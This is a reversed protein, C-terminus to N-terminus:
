TGQCACPAAPRNCEGRLETLPLQFSCVDMSRVAATHRYVCHGKTVHVSTAIAMSGDVIGLVILPCTRRQSTPM